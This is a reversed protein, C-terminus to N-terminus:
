RSEPESADLPLSRVMREGERLGWRQGKGFETTADYDAMCSQLGLAYAARERFQEVASQESEWTGPPASEGIAVLQEHIPTDTAPLKPLPMWHTAFPIGTELLIRMAHASFIEVVNRDELIVLVRADDAEPLRESVPIWKDASESQIVTPLVYDHEGDHGKALRCVIGSTQRARCLTESQIPSPKLARIAVTMADVEEDSQGNMRRYTQVFQERADAFGREYESMIIYTFEMIAATQLGSVNAAVSGRRHRVNSVELRTSPASTSADDRVSWRMRYAPLASRITSLDDNAGTPLAASVVM